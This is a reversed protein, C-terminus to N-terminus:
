CTSSATPGPAFTAFGNASIASCWASRTWRLRTQSFLTEEEVLKGDVIVLRRVDRDKLAGVFLNGTWDPFAAGRYVTLGSPAISPDWYTVPQEM